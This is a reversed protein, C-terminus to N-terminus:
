KINLNKIYDRLDGSLEKHSLGYEITAKLFGLKNGCDFRKGEFEYAYVKEKKIQKAIADTLQIERGSGKKTNKLINFISPNLIYRGVVGMDSPAKDNDPKEVINSLAWDDNNKNKVGDIVGYENLLNKKVKEVAIVSSNLEEYRKVMQKLCGNGSSLIMDDALIVAFPNNGVVKEACLVAHGLGLAQHQRIYICKVNSPVINQVLFLEKDRNKRELESEIECGKDFHNQISIKNKNTIFILTDIGAEIAEEAAYQILPKDVIPLMEKPSAKTAPLFRTGMGAVPFVAVKLKNSIKM